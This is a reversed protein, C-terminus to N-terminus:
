PGTKAWTTPYEALVTGNSSRIKGRVVRDSFSDLRANYTNNIVDERQFFLFYGEYGIMVVFLVVIMYTLRLINKNSKKASNKASDQKKSTKKEFLRM